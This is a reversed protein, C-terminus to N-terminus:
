GECAGGAAAPFHRCPTGVAVRLVVDEGRVTVEGDGAELEIHDPVDSDETLRWGLCEGLPEFYDEGPALEDGQRRGDALEEKLAALLLGPM